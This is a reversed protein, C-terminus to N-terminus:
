EKNSATEIPILKATLTEISTINNNGTYLLSLCSGGPIKQMVVSRILERETLKTTDIDMYPIYNNITEVRTVYDEVLVKRPKPM